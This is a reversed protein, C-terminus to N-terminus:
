SENKMENECDIQKLVFDTSDHLKISIKTEDKLVKVNIRVSFYRDGHKLHYAGFASQRRFPINLLKEIHKEAEDMTKVKSILCYSYSSPYEKNVKTRFTGIGTNICPYSFTSKKVVEPNMYFNKAPIGTVRQISELEQKVQGSMLDLSLGLASLSNTFKTNVEYLNSSASYNCQKVNEKKAIKDVPIPDSKEIKIISHFQNWIETWKHLYKRNFRVTVRIGNGFNFMGNCSPNPVHGYASCKLLTIPDDNERYVYFDDYYATDVTEATGYYELGYETKLYNRNVIKEVPAYRPLFIARPDSHPYKGTHIIQPSYKLSFNLQYNYHFKDPLENKIKVFDYHTIFDPFYSRLDLYIREKLHNKGEGKVYLKKVKYLTTGLEVHMWTDDISKGIENLKEEATKQKGCGSLLFIFCLIVIKKTM